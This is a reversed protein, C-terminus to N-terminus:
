RHPEIDDSGVAIEGADPLWELDELCDDLQSIVAHCAAPPLHITFQRHRTLQEGTARHTVEAQITGTTQYQWHEALKDLRVPRESLTAQEVLDGLEFEGHWDTLGCDVRQDNPVQVTTLSDTWLDDSIGKRKPAVHRYYDMTQGHLYQVLEPANVANWDDIEPRSCEALADRARERAAQADRKWGEKLVDEEDGWSSM